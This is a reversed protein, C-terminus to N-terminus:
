NADGLSYCVKLNDGCNYIRSLLLDGVTALRVSPLLLVYFIPMEISLGKSWISSVLLKSPNLCLLFNDETM